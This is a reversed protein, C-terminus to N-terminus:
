QSRSAKADDQKVILMQDAKVDSIKQIKGDPWQITVRDIAAQTGLGFTVPLEVQSLYSRTPSIRRTQIAEGRELTVLAGIGHKNGGSGELKVRLWHNGLSQDNRLLRPKQGCAVIVIDLDGDGDIDAYSSGRGVLPSQFDSGTDAEKCKMFETPYQSGANWFLQPAQEYHQSAQVKAIQDELHGNSQFIDLRGDLDFDLFLVGFTLELRTAPGFGNAVAADYFQLNRSRSVYLASMENAFNGIAVGISLDNRFAAADIGMAGRAAGTADFAVGALAGIERFTGNGQNHFMFNQVTDNAVVCDLYGDNDFDEFVLGLSKAMPVSTAPNVVHLGAEASVDKFRGNGENRFLSPFTGGFPQPRGYAREDGGLLRFEQSADFERTWEVYHCVMLDLDGDRDYDFWGSSVSWANSEGAVGADSTVDVFTGGDNRFLRDSGLCAIFLDIDGDGDYDGCAAGMGYVSIELGVDKTVDKFNGGGDNAYLTLTSMPKDPVQDQPWACANVLLLDQDGDQDYDFFACGGGMTEPLLKEGRAGNDHVFRIGASETIDSWKVKPVTLKPLERTEPLVVKTEPRVEETKKGSLVLYVAGVVLGIGLFVAISGMFARGIVSDDEQVPQSQSNIESSPDMSDEDSASNPSSVM